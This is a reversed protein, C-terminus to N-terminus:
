ALKQEYNSRVFRNIFSNLGQGAEALNKMTGITAAGASAATYLYKGGGRFLITIWDGGTEYALVGSNGSNAYPRM